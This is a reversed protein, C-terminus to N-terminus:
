SGIGEGHCATSLTTVREPRCFDLKRIELKEGGGPLGQVQPTQLGKHNRNGGQWLPHIAHDTGWGEPLEGEQDIWLSSTHAEAPKGEL